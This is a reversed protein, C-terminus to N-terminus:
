AKNVKLAQNLVRERDGASLHHITGMVRLSEKRIIEMPTQIRSKKEKGKLAERLEIPLDAFNIKGSMKGKQIKLIQRKLAQLDDWVSM